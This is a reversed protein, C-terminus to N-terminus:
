TIEREGAGIGMYGIVPAEGSIAVRNAVTERLVQTSIIYSEQESIKEELRSWLTCVSSGKSACPAAEDLEEVCPTGTAHPLSDAIRDEFLRVITVPVSM